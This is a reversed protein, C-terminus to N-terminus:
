CRHLPWMTELTDDEDEDDESFSPGRRAHPRAVGDEWGAVRELGMEKMAALVSEASAEAGHDQVWLRPRTRECACELPNICDTAHFDDAGDCPLLLHLRHM